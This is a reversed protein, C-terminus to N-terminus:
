AAPSGSERVEGEGPVISRLLPRNQPLVAFYTHVVALGGFLMAAVLHGTRMFGDMFAANWRDLVIFVPVGDWKVAEWMLLGSVLLFAGLALLSWHFAKQFPDYRSAPAPGGRRRSSGFFARAKAGAERLDARGVGIRRLGKARLTDWLGHAVVLATVALALYIHFTRWVAVQLGWYYFYLPTPVSPVSLFQALYVPLGTFLLIASGAALAWHMAKQAPTFPQPAGRAPGERVSPYRRALHVIALSSVVVAVGLVLGPSTQHTM